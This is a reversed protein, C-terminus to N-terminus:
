SSTLRNLFSILDARLSSVDFGHSREPLEYLLSRQLRGQIRQPGIQAAPVDDSIASAPIGEGWRPGLNLVCRYPLVALHKPQVYKDLSSRAETVGNRRCFPM